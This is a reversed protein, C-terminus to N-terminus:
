APSVFSTRINRADPKTLQNRRVTPELAKFLRRSM